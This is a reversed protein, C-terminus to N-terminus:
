KLSVIRRYYHLTHYSYDTCPSFRKSEAM